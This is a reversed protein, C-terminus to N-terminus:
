GIHSLRLLKKLDELLAKPKATPPYSMMLNGLPDAIYIRGGRQVPLGADQPFVSLLQAGSAADARVTVLGPQEQDLYAQDCCAATAIFVRRVRNMDDGLALRTQRIHTLAERCRTDCTGDGVYILTWKGHLLKADSTGGQAGGQVGGQVLPLALEPLPRPPTILDGNNTSGPPRWGELGYYLVFAAALPAFFLTILLWIPKRNPQTIEAATM